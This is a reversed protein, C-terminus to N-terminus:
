NADIDGVIIVKMRFINELFFVTFSTEMHIQVHRVICLYVLGYNGQIKAM